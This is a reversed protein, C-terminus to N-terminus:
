CATYRTKVNQCIQQILCKRPSLWASNRVSDSHCERLFESHVEGVMLKQLYSSDLYRHPLQKKTEEILWRQTRNLDVLEHKVTLGFGNLPKKEAKM